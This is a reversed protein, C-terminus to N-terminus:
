SKKGTPNQFQGMRASGPEYRWSGIGVIVRQGPKEPRARPVHNKEDDDYEDEAVLVVTNADLIADRFLQSVSDLADQPHEEYYPREFEFIQTHRFGAVAVFGMRPVDQLTALRVTYLSPAKAYVTETAM